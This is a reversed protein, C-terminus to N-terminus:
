HLICTKSLELSHSDIWFQIWNAKMSSTEATMEGGRWGPPNNGSYGNITPIIKGSPHKLTAWMADMTLEVNKFYGQVPAIYFSQCDSAVRSAIEQVRQDSISSDFVPILRMQEMFFLMLLLILLSSKKKNSELFSSVGYSFIFLMALGVRSLARIAGAGPVFPFLFRWLTGNRFFSTTCLFFIFLIGALIKSSIKDRTKILGVISFILTLLGIGLRQEHDAIVQFGRIKEQWSYLFSGEGMYFWSQIKPERINELTRLGLQRAAALYHSAMPYLVVGSMLSLLIITMGDEKLVKLLHFRTKKWILGLLFGILLSLGLFWGMYFGAYLQAVVSFFLVAEWIRRKAKLSTRFLETIAIAALPAYFVPLLQPHGLFNLRSSAFAFLFAGSVSSDWNFKLTRRLWVYFFLFNLSSVGIMWLLYASNETAGVWRLAWYLPAAGLLVDSYAMTNTVPYFIPPNWFSLGHTQGSIWRYGYEFIFHCFRADGADGPINKFGSLFVPYYSAFLGLILVLIVGVIGFRKPNM